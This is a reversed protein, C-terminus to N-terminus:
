GPNFRPPHHWDGFLAQTIALMTLAATDARLIRPGLSIGRGAKLRYLLERETPSFGGEPGVLLAWSAPPPAALWQKPVEGDGREDGFWLPVTEPWNALLEKFRLPEKVQPVNTRECQEAAEIAHARLRELNVRDAQTYDTMVPQLCAVGLETAKEIMMDIRGFKIPAFCLTVDPVPQQEKLCRLVKLEVTKKRLGVIQAEWEGQRGNFLAVHDQEKLRMVRTLYHAKEDGCELPEGAQLHHEVFLRIKPYHQSM